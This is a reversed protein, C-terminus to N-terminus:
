SESDIELTQMVTQIVEPLAIQHEQAIRRCDEYEPVSQVVKGELWKRKVRVSGWKTKVSIFDRQAEYRNVPYVRVGFTTTEQLLLNALQAEQDRNAIITIRTAPRNKKMFIPQYAVDLAGAAFCHEMLYGYWEPNMDDIHTEIVVHQSHNEELKEGIIVRLINPWPLDKSGAGSGQQQLRMGPKEFKAFTALFAAGTPTILEITASFPRMPASCETLLALTAPAPLPMEGHQTSVSGECWPLSSCYVEDIQFYELAVSIGVIDLISDTAGVEHFHVHDPDVGHIKGEAKALTEFISLTNDKVPKSLESELILYRIDSLHRHHPHSHHQEDQPHLEIQFHGAQIAGKMVKQYNLQYAEALKLKRFKSELIELPMGAELFAALLMDGSIGSFADVYLIKTM